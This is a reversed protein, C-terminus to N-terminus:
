GYKRTEIQKKYDSRTYRNTSTISEHGLWDQLDRIDVGALHLLTAISHRLGHPTVKKLNNRDIIKKFRKTFFNPQIIDGNDQVFLYGDYKYNYSNGFIKKNEEIRDIKALVDKKLDEFLPFTRCGKKSKTKDKFYIKEKNEKGDNQVCVHNIIFNNNDFDFSQIRLGIIESRRLGYYSDFKTPLEIVDGKLVEFLKVIDNKTYTPVEVVEITIPNVLDTPNYRVEKKRLLYKFAGSINDNYHDITANKLGNERLYDYFDELDDAIIEKVKKKHKEMTFYKKMWGTVIKKYGNYTNQEVSKVIVKYLWYEMYEYFDWDAKTIKRPNYNTTNLEVLTQFDIINMNADKKTENKEKLAIKFLDSIEESIKKANRANGKETKLGTSVWFQNWKGRSQYRIVCQYVNDKEQLSYSFDESIQCNEILNEIRKVLKQKRAEELM